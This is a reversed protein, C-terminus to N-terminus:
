KFKYQTSIPELIESLARHLGKHEADITMVVDNFGMIEMAQRGYTVFEKLLDVSGRHEKRVFITKLAAVRGARFLHPSCMWLQHGVLKGDDARMLIVKFTDAAWMQLMTIIDPEFVNDGLMERGNLNVLELMDDILAKDEVYKQVLYKM